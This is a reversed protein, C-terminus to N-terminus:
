LEVKQQEASLDKVPLILTFVSGQDVVSGVALGAGM